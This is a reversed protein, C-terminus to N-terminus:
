PWYNDLNKGENYKIEHIMKNDFLNMAVPPLSKMFVEHSKIQQLAVALPPIQNVTNIVIGSIMVANTLISLCYSDTYVQILVCCCPRVNAAM